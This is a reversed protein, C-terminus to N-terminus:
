TNRPHGAAAHWHPNRHHCHCGATGSPHLWSNSKFSQNERYFQDFLLHSKLNIPMAVLLDNAM